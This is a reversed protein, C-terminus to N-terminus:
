KNNLKAIADKIENIFYNRTEDLKLLSFEGESLFNEPILVNDFDENLEEKIEQVDNKSHNGAVLLLPVLLIGKSGDKMEQMLFSKKYGYAGEITYFYNNPNLLRLYERVYSFSQNGPTNLNPAGHAIYVINETNYKNRLKENLFTLYNNTKKASTFLPLTIEYRDSIHRFADVVRVLYEHEDTPFMNVSAVVVKRYGARDVAALQEVLTHHYNGQKELKKLVTRSSISIRLESNVSLVEKVDDYLKDYQEMATPESSGFVSLIVALDKDYHRLRKM